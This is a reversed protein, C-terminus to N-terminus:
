AAGRRHAAKIDDLNVTVYNKETVSIDAHGLLEKIIEIRTGGASLNTAFTKRLLHVTVHKRIGARKAIAQLEHQLSSNGLRAHSGKSAVFLAINEDARSNLYNQLHLKASATLYGKRYTRTKFGYISVVDDKFDIDNINLAALESVRCGISLTFELIARERLTLCSARMAAIEHANLYEKEKHVQKFNKIKSVPNKIIYDEEVAWKFFASLFRKMNSMTNMSVKNKSQYMALYYKIDDTTIDKYNKNITQLMNRTSRIYQEISKDSLNELKKNAAFVKLIYENDDFSTSLETCEEQITKGHLRDVLANELVQLQVNNLVMAMACVIDNIFKNTAIYM